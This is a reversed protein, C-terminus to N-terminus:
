INSKSNGIMSPMTVTIRRTDPMLLHVLSKRRVRESPETEMTNHDGLRLAIDDSRKDMSLELPYLTQIGPGETAANWFERM